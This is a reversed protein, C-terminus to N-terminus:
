EFPMESLRIIESDSLSPQARKRDRELRHSLARPIHPLSSLMARASDTKGRLLTTLIRLPLLLLFVTAFGWGGCDAVNFLIHNRQIIQNLTERTFFKDFSASRAHYILSRPEYIIRWGRQWARYSIDVEEYYGPRYLTDYGGLELFMSRRWAAAGGSAHFTQCPEPDHFSKQLNYVFREYKLRTRAMIVHESDGYFIKTTVAFVQPDSFYKLLPGIFNEDFTMDNNLLIVVEETRQAAADNLSFLFDNKEALIVEVEPFNARLYEVDNETSRNDVVVVSCPRGLAKAARLASPLSDKLLHQGNYNLLILCCSPLHTSEM